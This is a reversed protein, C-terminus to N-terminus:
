CIEVKRTWEGENRGFRERTKGTNAKVFVPKQDGQEDDYVVSATNFAQPIYIPELVTDNHMM